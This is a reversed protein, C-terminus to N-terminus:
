SCALRRQIEEIPMGTISVLKHRSTEGRVIRVTSRPCGLARALFQVLANNAASDVPPATIKIKLEDGSAGALENKSARPQVKCRLYVLAGQTKLYPPTVDSSSLLKQSSSGCDLSLSLAPSVCEISASRHM